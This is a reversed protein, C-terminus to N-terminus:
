SSHKKKRVCAQAKAEVGGVCSGAADSSGLLLAQVACARYM